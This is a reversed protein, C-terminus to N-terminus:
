STLVHVNKIQLMSIKHSKYCVPNQTKLQKLEKFVLCNDCFHMRDSDLNNDKNKLKALFCFKQFLFEKLVMYNGVFIVFIIVNFLGLGILCSGIMQIFRIFSTRNLKSGLGCDLDSCSQFLFCELPFSLTNLKNCESLIYSYIYTNDSAVRELKVQTETTYLKTWLKANM